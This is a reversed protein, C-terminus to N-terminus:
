YRYVVQTLVGCHIIQFGCVNIFIKWLIDWYDNRLVMFNGTAKQKIDRPVRPLSSRCCFCHGLIIAHFLFRIQMKSECRGGKAISNIKTNDNSTPPPHGSALFTSQAVVLQFIDWSGASLRATPGFTSVAQDKRYSTCDSPSLRPLAVRLLHWVFSISPAM